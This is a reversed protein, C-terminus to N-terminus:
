EYNPHKCEGENQRCWELQINEARIEGIEVLRERHM